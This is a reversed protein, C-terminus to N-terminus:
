ALLELEIKINKLRKGLKIRRTKLVRIQHRSLFNLRTKLMTRVENLESEVNSLEFLYKERKRAIAQNVLSNDTNM